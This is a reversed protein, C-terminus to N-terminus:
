MKKLLKRCKHKLGVSGEPIVSEMVAKLEPKLEPYKKIVKLLIDISFARVAISEKKDDVFLFCRDTLQGLQDDSVSVPAEIFIKLISRKVGDIKSKHLASILADIHSDLLKPYKISAFQVVRAARMSLPYKDTLMAQVAENFLQQNNGITSVVIDIILRSSDVLQDEISAM